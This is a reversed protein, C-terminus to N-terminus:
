EISIKLKIIVEKSFNAALKLRSQDPQGQGLHARKAFGILDERGSNLMYNQIQPSLAGQCNFIDVIEVSDSLYSKINEIWDKIKPDNEPAGHTIFLAIQKNVIKQLFTQVKSSPNRGEIPFGIFCFGYDDIDLEDSMPVMEKESPINNFIEDAIKKTNGSKSSYIVAIKSKKM